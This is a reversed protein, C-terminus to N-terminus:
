GGAGRISASMSRLADLKAQQVRLSERCVTMTSEAIRYDFLQEATAVTAADTIADVTLKEGTARSSIRHKAFDRKYDTERKALEQGALKTDEVLSDLIALVEEMQHAITAPNMPIGWPIGVEAM